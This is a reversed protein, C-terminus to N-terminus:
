SAPINKNFVLKRSSVLHASPQSDKCSSVTKVFLLSKNKTPLTVLLWCRDMNFVVLYTIWISFICYEFNLHSTRLDASDTSKTDRVKWGKREKGTEEEGGMEM